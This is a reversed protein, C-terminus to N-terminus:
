CQIITWLDNDDKGSFGTVEQQYSGKDLLINHSHLRMKQSDIRVIVGSRIYEDSYPSYVIRFKWIFGKKKSDFKKASILSQATMPSKKKINLYLSMKTSHHVIRVGEEKKIFGSSSDAKHIEFQDNDDRENFCTVEQSNTGPYNLSHSHLSKGTTLHIFTVKKSETSVITGRPTIFKIPKLLKEYKSVKLDPNAVEVININTNNPEETQISVTEIKQSVSNIDIKNSSTSNKNNIIATIDSKKKPKEFQDYSLFSALDPKIPTFNDDTKKTSSSTVNMWTVQYLSKKMALIVESSDYSVTGTEQDKYPPLFSLGKIASANYTTSAYHSMGKPARCYLYALGSEGLENKAREFVWKNNDYKEFENNFIENIKSKAIERILSFDSDCKGKKCEFLGTSSFRINYFNHKPESTLSYNCYVWVVYFGKSLDLNFDLDEVDYKGQVDSFKYTEDYKAVVVSTPRVATDLKCDRHFRWHWSLCSLNLKLKKDIKLNFVHPLDLETETIQFRCENTNTNEVNCVYCQHFYTIHDEFKMWFIGDDKKEYGFLRKKENTWNKTDSDSYDGKWENSAWPNRCKVLRILEGNINEEVVCLLSYAHNSIIGMQSLNQAKSDSSITMFYGNKDALLLKSFIENIDQDKARYNIRESNIGTLALLADKTYGSIINTFGGNVKAWAKELIQFWIENGNPISFVFPSSYGKSKHVVFYDDLVVVQWEGDIFLVVEFYGQSTKHKTRFLQYIMEPKEALAAVACVFYCHGLSCQKIDDYEIGDKFVDYNSSLEGLRVWKLSSVEVGLRGNSGKVEDGQNGSLISENSPPFLPDTFMEKGSPPKQDRWYKKVSNPDFKTKKIQVPVNSEM